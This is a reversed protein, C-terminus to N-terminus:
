SAVKVPTVSEQSFDLHAGKSGMKEKEKGKDTNWEAHPVSMWGWIAVASLLVVVTLISAGARDGTTVPSPERFPNSNLGANPDGQSIGGTDNTAPPDVELLSQVAALVNM